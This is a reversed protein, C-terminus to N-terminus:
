QWTMPFIVFGPGVLSRRTKGTTTRNRTRGSLRRVMKRPPGVEKKTEHSAVNLSRRKENARPGREDASRERGRKRAKAQKGM